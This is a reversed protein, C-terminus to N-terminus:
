RYFERLDKLDKQSYWKMHSDYKKNVFELWVFTKDGSVYDLEVPYWAFWRRWESPDKRTWKM